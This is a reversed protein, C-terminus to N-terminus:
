QSKSLVQALIVLCYIPMDASACVQDWTVSANMLHRTSQQRIRDFSRGNPKLMFLLYQQCLRHQKWLSKHFIKLRHLMQQKYLVLRQRGWLHPYPTKAKNQSKKRQKPLSFSVWYLICKELGTERRLLSLDARFDRNWILCLHTQIFTGMWPLDELASNNYTLPLM